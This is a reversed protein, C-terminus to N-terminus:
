KSKEEHKYDRKLFFLETLILFFALLNIFSLYNILKWSFVYAGGRYYYELAFYLNLTHVISITVYPIYLKYNYFAALLLFPLCYYLHREHMRTLFFFSSSFFITITLSIIYLANEKKILLGTIYKILAAFMIIFTTLIGWQRYTFFYFKRDDALWFSKDVIGWFNFANVSTYPYRSIIEKYRNLLLILPSSFFQYFKAEKFDIFSFNIFWIVLIFGLFFLFIKKLILKGNNIIFGIQFLLAIFFIPMVLLYIIKTSLAVALSAGILFYKKRLLFFLALIVFFTGVIDVQGWMSSNVFIVPNFLFLVLSLFALKVSKKRLIKFITIGALIDFIVAPFKFFYDIPISATKIQLKYFNYIRQTFFLILPYFPLYDPSSKAYYSQIGNQSLERGWTKWFWMDSGHTKYPFINLRFIFAILLIFIFLIREKLKQKIKM